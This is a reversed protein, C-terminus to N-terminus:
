FMVELCMKTDKPAIENFSHEEKLGYLKMFCFAYNSIKRSKNLILRVPNKLEQMNGKGYMTIKYIPM